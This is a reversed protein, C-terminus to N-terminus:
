YFYFSTMLGFHDGEYKDSSVMPDKFRYSEHVYRAKLGWSPTVLWEGEVILGTSAKMGENFSPCTYTAGDPGCTGGKTVFSANVARRVGFGLRGKESAHWQLLLEIPYRRFYHEGGTFGNVQDNHYGVSGQLTLPLGNLRYALGLRLDLGAGASIDEDYKTTTGVPILTWAQITDGGWTYGVGIFPRLGSGNSDEALAPFTAASFTLALVLARRM